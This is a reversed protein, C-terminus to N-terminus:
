LNTHNQRLPAVLFLSSISFFMILQVATNKQHAGSGGKGERM